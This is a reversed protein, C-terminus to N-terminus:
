GQMQLKGIVNPNGNKILFEIACLSKYIRRWEFSASKIKLLCHDLIKPASEYSNTADAMELMKQNSIQWTDNSTAEILLADIKDKSTYSTYTEGVRTQFASAYDKVSSLM